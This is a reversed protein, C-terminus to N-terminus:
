KGVNSTFAVCYHSPHTFLYFNGKRKLRQIGCRHLVNHWVSSSNRSSNHRLIAKYNMLQTTMELEHFLFTSETEQYGYHIHTNMKKNESQLPHISFFGPKQSTFLFRYRVMIMYVSRQPTPSPPHPHPICKWTQFPFFLVTSAAKKVLLITIYLYIQSLPYVLLVLGAALGARGEPGEPCGMTM